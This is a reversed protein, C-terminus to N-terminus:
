KRSVKLPTCAWTLERFLNNDIKKFQKGYWQRRGIDVIPEYVYAFLEGDMDRAVYNYGSPVAVVDSIKVEWIAEVEKVETHAAPTESEALVLSAAECWWSYFPPDPERDFEVYVELGTESKYNVERVTGYKGIFRREKDCAAIAKVRDGVEFERPAPELLGDDIYIWYGGKCDHDDVNQNDYESEEYTSFEVVYDFISKHVKKIIGIEGVRESGNAVKVRDGVKFRLKAM